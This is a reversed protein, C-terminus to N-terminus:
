KKVTFGLVASYRHEAHEADKRLVVPSGQIKQPVVAHLFDWRAKDSMKLLSNALLPYRYIKCQEPDEIEFESPTGLSYIFTVEGNEPIDKHRPFGSLQNRSSVSYTNFTFNWELTVDKYKEMEPLQLIRSILDVKIFEPINKNGIAYTLSHGEGGYQEFYQFTQKTVHVLRYDESSGLNHQKSLYTRGKMLQAHQSHVLIEERFKSLNKLLQDQDEFSLYNKWISLGPVVTRITEPAKASYSRLFNVCFIASM